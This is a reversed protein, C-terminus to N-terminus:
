CPAPAQTVAQQRGPETHCLAAEKREQRRQRHLAAHRLAKRREEGVGGAVGVQEPQSLADDLCPTRVPCPRCIGIAHAERVDRAEPSEGEPGFFVDGHGGCLAHIWWGGNM